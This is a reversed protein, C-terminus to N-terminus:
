SDRHTESHLHCILPRGLWQGLFSPILGVQRSEVRPSVERNVVTEDNAGVAIEILVSRKEKGRDHGILLIKGVHPFWKDRWTGSFYPMSGGALWYAM